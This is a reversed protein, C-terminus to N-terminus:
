STSCLFTQMVGVCALCSLSRTRLEVSCSACLSGISPASCAFVDLSGGWSPESGSECGSPRAPLPSRSCPLSYLLLLLSAELVDAMGSMALTAPQSLKLEHAWHIAGREPSSARRSLTFAMPLFSLSPFRLSLPLLRSEAIVFLVAAAMSNCFWGRRDDALESGSLSEM